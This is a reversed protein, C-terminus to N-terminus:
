KSRQADASDRRRELGGRTPQWLGEAARSRGSSTRELRARRRKRKTLRKRPTSKAAGRARSRRRMRTRTSQSCLIWFTITLCTYLSLCVIPQWRRLTPSSQTAPASAIGRRVNESVYLRELCALGTMAGILKALAANGVNNSALNLSVLTYNEGPHGEQKLAELAACVAEAGKTGLANDSLDLSLCLLNRSLMSESHTPVLDKALEFSSGFRAGLGLEGANDM